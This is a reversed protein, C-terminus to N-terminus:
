LSCFRPDSPGNGSKLIKIAVQILNKWRGRYVHAFCGSGLEEELDFEEKPLEWEDMPFPLLAPTSPKNQLLSATTSGQGRPEQKPPSLPRRSEAAQRVRKCPNGLQGANSLSSKQYYDVLEVLSNFHRSPEVHFNSENTQLVKYHKVRDGSRVASVGM